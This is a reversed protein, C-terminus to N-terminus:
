RPRWSINGVGNFRNKLANTNAWEANMYSQDEDEQLKKQQEQKKYYYAMMEKQTKEDVVPERVPAGQGKKQLKVILKTKENKGIFDSLLKGRKMEKGAWWLQALPTEIIQKGAQTNLDESGDIIEQVLDYPPLGMPYTMMVIGKLLEFAKKATSRTVFVNRSANDKSIEKKADAITAKIKDAMEHNPANGTRLGMCDENFVSGGSPYCKPAWEDKLKLEEIQEDTLGQMEPPKMIGHDALGELADALREVRLIDSYTEAIEETVESVAASCLTEFLFLSKEAKKVHLIVM